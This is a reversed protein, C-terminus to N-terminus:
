HEQLPLGKSRDEQYSEEQVGLLQTSVKKKWLNKLLTMLM